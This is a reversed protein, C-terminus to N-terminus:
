HNLNYLQQVAWGLAFMIAAELIIYVARKIKATRRRHERTKM